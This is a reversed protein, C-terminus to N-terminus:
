MAVADDVNALRVDLEARGNRDQKVGFSRFNAEALQFFLRDFQYCPIGNRQCGLLNQTIASANRNRVAIQRVINRDAGGNKDVVAQDAQRYFGDLAGLNMAADDVAARDLALLAHVDWADL